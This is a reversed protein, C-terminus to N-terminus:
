GPAGGLPDPPPPATGDAPAAEDRPVLGAGAATQAAPYQIAAGPASLNPPEGPRLVHDPPLLFLEDTWADRRIDSLPPTVEDVPRGDPGLLRLSAVIRQRASHKPHCAFLTATHAYTQDAIWLDEPGVISIRVVEYTHVGGDLMTFVVQDGAVLEDLRNFSRLYTVRHGAVVVNGMEGPLPTGPWHSPGRNIATLTMGQQLEQSVELKPIDVRGLVVQPTAEHANLPLPGPVPLDPLGVGSPAVTTTTGPAEGALGVGLATGGAERGGDDRAAAAVAVIAVIALAAALVRRWLPARSLPATM